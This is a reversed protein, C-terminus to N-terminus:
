RVSCDKPWDKGGDKRLTVFNADPVDQPLGQLRLNTARKESEGDFYVMAM